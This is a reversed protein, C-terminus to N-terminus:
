RTVQLDPRKEAGSLPPKKLFEPMNKEPRDLVM